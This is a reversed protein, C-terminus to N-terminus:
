FGPVDLYNLIQKPIVPDLDFTTQGAKIPYIKM